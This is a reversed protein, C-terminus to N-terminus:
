KYCLLRSAMPPNHSSFDSDLVKALNSITPDDLMITTSPGLILIRCSMVVRFSFLSFSLLWNIRKPSHMYAPTSQQPAICGLAVNCLVRISGCQLMLLTIMVIHTHMTSVKSIFLSKQCNTICTSGLILIRCSM